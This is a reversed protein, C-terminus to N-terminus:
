KQYGQYWKISRLLGEELGVKPIFELLKRAKSIDPVRVEVEPGPHPKFIIKSSSNAFRVISEALGFITTTAQPNGINFIQGKAGDAEMATLLVDAFDEVYCWSRIQTGENFVTIDKGQIASNIM